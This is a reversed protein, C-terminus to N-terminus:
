QCNKDNGDACVAKRNIYQNSGCIVIPKCVKNENLKYGPKCEKCVSTKTDVDSCKEPM